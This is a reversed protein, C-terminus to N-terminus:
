EGGDTENTAPQDCEVPMDCATCRHPAPSHGAPQDVLPPHWPCPDPFAERGAQCCKVAAAKMQRLRLRLWEQEPPDVPVAAPAALWDLLAGVAARMTAKNAKPVDTWPKRSAAQTEWGARAAAREYADHMVECAAEVSAAPQNNPQGDVTM